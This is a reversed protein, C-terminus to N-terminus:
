KKSFPNENNNNININKINSRLFEVNEKFIIEENKEKLFKENERLYIKLIDKFALSIHKCYNHHYNIYVDNTCSCKFTKDFDNINIKVDYNKVKAEINVNKIVVNHLENHNYNLVGDYIQNCIRAKKRTIQEDISYERKRKLKM